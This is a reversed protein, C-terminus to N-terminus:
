NPTPQEVHDIVLVEVPGKEPKLKLGLQQQLATFISPGSSDAVPAPPVGAAPQGGGGPGAARSYEGLMRSEGLGPTWRLSFRYRGTLGTKDLVTRGLTQSLARALYSLPAGSAYIGAEGPRGELVATPHKAQGKNAAGVPAAGKGTVEQLKPGHKAVVLAYVPLERTERHFKLKFRDALLQQLMQEKVLRGQAPSLKRLYGDVSSDSKAQIDFRESNIWSAGRLIQSDQIGYASQILLKLTVNTAYCRGDRAPNMVSIDIGRGNPVAPKISVVEFKPAPLAAKTQAIAIRGPILGGAGLLVALLLASVGLSALSPQASFGRRHCPRMQHCLQVPIGERAAQWAAESGALGGEAIVVPETAM